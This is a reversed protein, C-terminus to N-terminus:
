CRAFVRMLHMSVHTLMWTKYMGATTDRRALATTASGSVTGFGCSNGKHSGDVMWRSTGQSVLSSTISHFGRNPCAWSARSSSRWASRERVYRSRKLSQNKCPCPALVRARLQRLDMSAFTFAAAPFYRAAWLGNDSSDRSSLFTPQFPVRRQRSSASM